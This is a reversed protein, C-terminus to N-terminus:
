HWRTAYDLRHLGVLMLRDHFSAKDLERLYKLLQMKMSLTISSVPDEEVALVEGPPNLAMTDYWTANSSETRTYLISMVQRGSQASGLDVANM